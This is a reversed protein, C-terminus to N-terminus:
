QAEAARRTTPSRGACRKAAEATRAAAGRDASCGGEAAGRRRRRQTAEDTARGRRPRAPACGTPGPASRRCGSLPREGGRRRAGCGRRGGPPTCGGGGGCSRETATPERGFVALLCCSFPPRPLRREGQRDRGCRTESAGARLVPAGTRRRRRLRSRSAREARVLRLVCIRCAALNEQAGPEYLQAHKADSTFHM